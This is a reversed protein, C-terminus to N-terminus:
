TSRWRRFYETEASYSPRGESRRQRGRYKPPPFNVLAEGLDYKEGNIFTNQREGSSIDVRM